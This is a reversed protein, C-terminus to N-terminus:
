ACRTRRARSTARGPLATYEHVVGRSEWPLDGRLLFPLRYAFDASGMRIMYAEVAPDPEFDPDIEWTM